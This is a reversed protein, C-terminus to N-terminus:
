VLGQYEQNIRYVLIMVQMQIGEGLVLLKFVAMVVCVAVGRDLVAPPIILKCSILPLIVVTIEM